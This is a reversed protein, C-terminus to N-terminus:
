SFIIINLIKKILFLFFNYFIRSKSITDNQQFLVVDESLGNDSRHSFLIKIKNFKVEIM